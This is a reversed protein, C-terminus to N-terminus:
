RPELAVIWPEHNTGFAVTVTYQKTHNLVDALGNPVVVPNLKPRVRRGLGPAKEIARSTSARVIAPVVLYRSRDPYASRLSSPDLAADIAVLRSGDRVSPTGQTDLVAYCPRALTRAFETPPAVDALWEADYRWGLLFASGRGSEPAIPMESETLHVLADQGARNAAVAMLMAADAILVVLLPAVMRRM